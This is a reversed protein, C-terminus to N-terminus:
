LSGWYAALNAIDSSSLKKVIPAMRKSKRAGSKYDNLAKAIQAESLKALSPGNNKKGEGNKGHCGKCSAAKAKGAAKDGAAYAPGAIGLALVAVAIAIWRTKM